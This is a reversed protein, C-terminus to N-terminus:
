DEEESSSSSTADDIEPHKKKYTEFEKQLQKYKRKYKTDSSKPSEKNQIERSAKLTILESNIKNYNEQSQRKLETIANAYENRQKTLNSITQKM